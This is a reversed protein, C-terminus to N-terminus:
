KKISLIHAAQGFKFGLSEYTHIVARNTSAPHFFVYESGKDRLLYTMEIILKKYWGKCTKSSVASLVMQSVNCNLKEWLGTMYNATLFADSPAESEDPVIVVDSFGKISQEIYTSLFEDAKKNNIAPDAHVRDYENVMSASIEKLNPIDAHEAIRTKYRAHEFESLNSGYYTLRTEILSFRSSNLAQLVMTDESPICSFCYDGKKLHDKVFFEAATNLIEQNTHKFLVMELKYTPIKFHDSDWNLYRLIFYHHKGDVEIGVIKKSAWSEFLPKKVTEDIIIGRAVSRLFNVDSYYFNKENRYDFIAMAEDLSLKSSDINM